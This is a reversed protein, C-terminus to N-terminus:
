VPAVPAPTTGDDGASSAGNSDGGATGPRDRPTAGSKPAGM